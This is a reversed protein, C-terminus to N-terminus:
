YVAAFINPFSAANNVGEPLIQNSYPIILLWQTNHAPGIGAIFDDNPLISVNDIV